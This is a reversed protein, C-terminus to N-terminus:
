RTFIKLLAAKLDMDTLDKGDPLGEHKYDEPHDADYRCWSGCGTHNGYAHHTVNLLDLRLQNPNNKNQHIVHGLCTKLYNRAEKSVHLFFSFFHKSSLQLTILEPCKPLTLTCM